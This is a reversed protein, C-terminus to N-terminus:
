PEGLLKKDIADLIEKKTKADLKTGKSKGVEEVAAFVKAKAEAMVVKREELRLKQGMRTEALKKLEIKVEEQQGKTRMGEAM